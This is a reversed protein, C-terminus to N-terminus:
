KRSIREAFLTQLAEATAPHLTVEDLRSLDVWAVADADDAAKAEGGLYRALFDLVVYHYQLAQDEDRQLYEFHWVLEGAEIHVGTEELIEREAAARLSEGAAVRGGPIAWLGRGPERGRQVLLVKEQQLVIAGVGLQPWHQSM